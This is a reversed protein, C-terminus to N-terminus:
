VNTKILRQTNSRRGLYDVFRYLYIGNPLSSLDAKFVNSRNSSFNFMRIRKGTINFIELRQSGVPSNILTFTTVGYTPNPTTFMSRGVADISMADFINSEDQLM